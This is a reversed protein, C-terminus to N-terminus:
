SKINQGDTKGCFHVALFWGQKLKRPSKTGPGLQEKGKTVFDKTSRNRIRPM